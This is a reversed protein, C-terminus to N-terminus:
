APGGVPQPRNSGTPRLRRGLLAFIGSLVAAGGLLESVRQGVLQARWDAYVRERLSDTVPLRLHAISMPAELVKQDNLPIDQLYSQLVLELGAEQRLVGVPDAISRGTEPEYKQRLWDVALATVDQWAEEASSFRRSRLVLLGDSFTVGSEARAWEPAATVVHSSWLQRPSSQGQNLPKTDLVVRERTPTSTPASGPVPAAPQVDDTPSSREAEPSEPWEALEPTPSTSLPDTSVAEREVEPVSELPKGAADTQGWVVEVSIGGGGLFVTLWGWLAVGRAVRSMRRRGNGWGQRSALQNTTITM